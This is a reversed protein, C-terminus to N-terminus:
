FNNKYFIYFINLNKAIQNDILFIIIIISLLVYLTYYYNSCNIILIYFELGVCIINSLKM